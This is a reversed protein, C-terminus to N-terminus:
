GRPTRAKSAMDKFKNLSPGPRRRYKTVTPMLNDTAFTQEAKTGDSNLGASGKNNYMAAVWFPPEFSSAGSSKPSSKAKQQPQETKTEQSKKSTKKSSKTKSETETTTTSQVKDQVVNKAKEATKVAQEVPKSELIETAKEQVVDQAKEATKVVAQVPKSEGLEDLELYYKSDSNFIKKLMQM